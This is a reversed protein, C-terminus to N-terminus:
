LWWAVIFSGIWCWFVAHGHAEIWEVATAYAGVPVYIWNMDPKREPTEGWEAVDWEAVDWQAMPGGVFEADAHILVAREGTAAKDLRWQRSRLRVQGDQWRAVV